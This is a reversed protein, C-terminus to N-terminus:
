VALSLGRGTRGPPAKEKDPRKSAGAPDERDGAGARQGSGEAGRRRAAERGGQSLAQAARRADQPPAVVVLSEFENRLAREKLMAATEAAFRDEELQHFDVEEMSGGRGDMPGCRCARRPRQGARSPRSQAAGGEGRGRSKPFRADGENRFFLSKRGDAVLVFSNHPVQMAASWRTRGFSRAPGRSPQRAGGRGPMPRPRHADQEGVVVAHVGGAELQELRDGARKESSMQITAGVSSCDPAPWESVRVTGTRRRFSPSRRKQTVPVGVSATIIPSAWIM